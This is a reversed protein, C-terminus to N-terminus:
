YDLEDGNQLGLKDSEGAPIELVRDVAAPPNAVEERGRAHPVNKAVGIIRDGAIWIIDLDFQMDKMWFAYWGPKEFTFLMGCGSCLGKRGSLGLARREPTAAIEAALKNGGIQIERIANDKQLYTPGKAKFLFGFILGVIIMTSISGLILWFKTIKM